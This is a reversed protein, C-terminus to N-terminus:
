AQEKEGSEETTAPNGGGHCVEWKELRCVGERESISRFLTKGSINVKKAKVPRMQSMVDKPLDGRVDCGIDRVLVKVAGQGSNRIQRGVGPQSSMLLLETPVVPMYLRTSATTHSLGQSM